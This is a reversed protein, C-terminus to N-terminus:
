SGRPTPAGKLSRRSRRRRSSRPQWPPCAPSSGEPTRTRLPRPPLPLPCAALSAAPGSEPTKAPRPSNRESDNTTAMSSIRLCTRVEYVNPQATKNPRQSRPAARPEAEAEASTQSGQAGVYKQHEQQPHTGGREDMRQGSTHKKETMACPAVRLWHTLAFLLSFLSETFWGHRLVSEAEEITACFDSGPLRLVHCYAHHRSHHGEEEPRYQGPHGNKRVHPGPHVPPQGLRNVRDPQRGKRHGPGLVADSSRRVRADGDDDAADGAGAPTYQAIYTM